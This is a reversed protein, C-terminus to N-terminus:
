FVALGNSGDPIPLAPLAELRGQQDLAYAGIEDTGNRLVYLYRGYRSMAADLPGSGDLVAAQADDLMLSGDPRVRYSSISGSATNTTYVTRNNRSTVAWCAASEGSEVSASIPVLIGGSVDYSTMASAGEAGGFAESVLLHGRSTFSFGFPTQGVSPNVIGERASGDAEVPYVLIQNTAKETVVLADGRPTFSIQAPGSGTGSLSRESGAIRTFSGGDFDFGAISGPISDTGANVVYVLGRRETVSVPRVNGTDIVDVLTLAGKQIRLAAVQNSGANVAFLHRGNRSLVVGGQNGLGSSTGEGGTSVRALEKFSGDAGRTFQIIENGGADNTMTFVAGPGPQGATIVPVAGRRAEAGDTPSLISTDRDCGVMAVISAASVALLSMIRRM